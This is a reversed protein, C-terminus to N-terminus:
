NRRDVGWMLKNRLNKFFSNEEIRVTKVNFEARRVWVTTKHDMLFSRSDLTLWFQENRSEVKLKYPLNDPVVIPRVTLNHPAIPSIIFNNCDLAVIPGGVSLSYATSGTPTSFILGDAWYSNIYEEGQYTHITIMGSDKKQVSVENLAYPFEDIKGNDTEVEIVSRQEISYHGKMLAILSEEMDERSINALFGLRGSNIGVIPIGFDRIISVARLFTGDGGISIMVDVKGVMDERASFFGRVEPKISFAESLHDYFPKYVLTESEGSRLIQFLSEVSPLFNERVPSGYIAIKM